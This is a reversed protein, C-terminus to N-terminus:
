GKPMIECFRKAEAPTVLAAVYSDYLQRANAHRSWNAVRAADSYQSIMMTCFTHRLADHVWVVPPSLGRLASRIVSLARNGPATVAMGDMGRYKRLWAWLNEPLGHLVWDDGTKVVRRAEGDVIRWGRMVIVRQTFDFNEGWRLRGAEANRIGGFLQVAFWAAFRPAHEEVWGMLAACEDVSFVGRPKRPVVPLDDVAVVATASEVVLGRRKCWSFFNSVSSHHNQVTRESAGGNRLGLLWALVADKSVERLDTEGFSARFPVLHKRLTKEHAVSIGVTTKHALFREVAEGVSVREVDAPHHKAWFRAVERLDAGRALRKAELFETAEAVSYAKAAAGLEVRRGCHEKWMREAEGRTRAYRRHNKGDFWFSVQWRKKEEVWKVPVKGIRTRATKADMAACRSLVALEFPSFAWFVGFFAL